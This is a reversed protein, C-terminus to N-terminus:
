KAQAASNVETEAEALQAVAVELRVEAAVSAEKRRAREGGLQRRAHPLQEASLQERAQRGRSAEMAENRLRLKTEDRAPGLVEATAAMLERQTAPSPGRARDLLRSLTLTSSGFRAFGRPHYQDVATTSGIGFATESKIQGTRRRYAACFLLCCCCCCSLALVFLVGLVHMEEILRIM